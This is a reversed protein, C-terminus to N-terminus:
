DAGAPREQATERGPRAVPRWGEPARRAAAQQADRHGPSSAVGARTLRELCLGAHRALVELIEPWAGPAAGSAEGMTDAYLVAVVDGGIEIPIALGARDRDLLTFPPAPADPGTSVAQRARVAQTVVHAENLPLDLRRGDEHRFESFGTARWGKLRDGRVLLLVARGAERGACVLLVDLIQSLSTCADFARVAGLLRSFGALGAQREEVRLGAVRSEFWAALQTEAALRADAAAHRRRRVGATLSGVLDQVETEIQGCVREVLTELAARLQEDSPTPRLDPM